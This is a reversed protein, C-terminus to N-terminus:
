QATLKAKSQERKISYSCFNYFLGNGFYGKIYIPLFLYFIAAGLGLRGVAVVGPRPSPPM